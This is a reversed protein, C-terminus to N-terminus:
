CHWHDASRLRLRRCWSKRRGRRHNARFWDTAYVVLVIEYQMSCSGAKGLLSGGARLVASGLCATSQRYGAPPPLFRPIPFNFIEDNTITSVVSEMSRSRRRLGSINCHIRTRPKLAIKIKATNANPATSSHDVNTKSAPAATRNRTQTPFCSRAPRTFSDRLGRYRGAENKKM